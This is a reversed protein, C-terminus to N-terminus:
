ILEITGFKEVTASVAPGVENTSLSTIFLASAVIQDSISIVFSTILYHYSASIFTTYYRHFMEGMKM